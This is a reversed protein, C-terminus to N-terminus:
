KLDGLNKAINLSTKLPIKLSVVNQMISRAKAGFEDAIEDRVEFVLEDHIQLIMRADAGLFPRIQCMALKIIDAASGQFKTNVCEREYMALVM